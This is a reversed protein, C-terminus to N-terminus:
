RTFGSTKHTSAAHTLMQTLDEPTNVGALQRACATGPTLARVSVARLVAHLSASGHALEHTVAPRTRPHYLACCTHYLARNGDRAFVVADVDPSRHRLLRRLVEPGLWGLDCALLLVWRDKAADLASCLGGLPGRNPQADALRPVDRLATPLSDPRGLLVVEPVVRQAVGVVHELFTPACPHPLLAKARGMRRSQGGVLVGAIVEDSPRM